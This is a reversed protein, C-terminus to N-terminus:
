VLSPSSSLKTINLMTRVRNLLISPKLIVKSKMKRHCHKSTSKRPVVQCPLIVLLQTYSYDADKFNQPKKGVRGSRTTVGLIVKNNTYTYSEKNDDHDYIYGLESIEDDKADDDNVTRVIDELDLSDDEDEFKVTPKITSTQILTPTPIM